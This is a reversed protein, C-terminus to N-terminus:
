GQSLPAGVAGWSDGLLGGLGGGFKRTSGGPRCHVDCWQRHLSSLMTRDISGFNVKPSIVWGDASRYSPGMQGKQGGLIMQQTM